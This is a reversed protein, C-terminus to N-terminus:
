LGLSKAMDGLWSGWGQVSIGYHRSAAHGIADLPLSALTTIVFFAAFFLLGQMWRRRLLREAWAALGAAWRLSLLLWLVVLGWLSGAIDLATRLHSLTIAQALKGPPLSYAQSSAPQAPTHAVPAPSAPQSAAIQAPSPLGALLVALCLPALAFRLFNM